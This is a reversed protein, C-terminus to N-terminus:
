QELQPKMGEVSIVFMLDSLDAIQQGSKGLSTKHKANNGPKGDFSELLDKHPSMAAFGGGLDKTFAPHEDVKISAIGAAETAGLGKAFAAYDKVPVVIVVPGEKQDFDVKGDKDPVVAVALSGHKDLGDAALLKKTMNVPNKEDDKDIPAHLVKALDEARARF